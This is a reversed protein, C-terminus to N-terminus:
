VFRWDFSGAGGGGSVVWVKVRAFNATAPKTWTDNSTYIRLISGPATVDVNWDTGDHVLLKDEDDVWCRWGERPNYFAWAGDQWAAINGDQSAWAGTASAAPIYRDGDAPSGPPATLDRDKVSLQVIADLAQITDNVTVHKQAQAVELLPMQLNTTNSM